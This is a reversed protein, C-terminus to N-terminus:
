EGSAPLLSCQTITFSGSNGPENPIPDSTHVTGEDRNVDDILFGNFAEDGFGNRVFRRGRQWEPSAQTPKSGEHQEVPNVFRQWQRTGNVLKWVDNGETWEATTPDINYESLDLPTKGANRLLGNLADIVRPDTQYAM